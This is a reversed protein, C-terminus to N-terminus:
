RLARGTSIGAIRQEFVSGTTQTKPHALLRLIVQQKSTAM